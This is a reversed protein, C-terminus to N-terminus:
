CKTIKTKEGQPVKYIPLLPLCLKLEKLRAESPIDAIRFGPHKWMFLQARLMEESPKYLHEWVMLMAETANQYPYWESDETAAIGGEGWDAFIVEESRGATGRPIAKREQQHSQQQYIEVEEQKSQQAYLEQQQSQQEEQQSQAV